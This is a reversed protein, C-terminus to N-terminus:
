IDFKDFIDYLRPLLQHLYLHRQFHTLPPLVPRHSSTADKDPLPFPPFLTPVSDLQVGCQSAFLTMFSVFREPKTTQQPLYRLFRVCPATAAEGASRPLPQLSHPLVMSIARTAEVPLEFILQEDTPIPSNIEIHANLKQGFSSLEHISGSDRRIIYHSMCKQSHSPRTWRESLSLGLGAPTSALDRAVVGRCGTRCTGGGAEEQIGGLGM